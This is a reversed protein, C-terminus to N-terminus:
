SVKPGLGVKRRAGGIGFHTEVSECLYIGNREPFEKDTLEISYGPEIFPVLYPNLFGEWGTYNKQLQLEDAFSNLTDADPVNNMLFTVHRKATKDKSATRIVDGTVLKGNMFVQVPEKPERQKLQNDRPVNWGLRYKVTPLDFVKKGAVYPTYVLGCWLTSPYIFFLTLARESCKKIHEIVAGGDVKTMYLGKLPFDVPCMIKIDETQAAMDLLVEKASTTIYKKTLSVQNRLQWSYGECEIEIPMDINRRKVFGEFETRLDGNLGLRIKVRTGPVFLDGMAMEVPMARSGEKIFGIHPLKIIASEVYGLM